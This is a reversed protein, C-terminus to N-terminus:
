AAPDGAAGRSDVVCCPPVALTTEISTAGIAAAVTAVVTLVAGVAFLWRLETPPPAIAVEPHQSAVTRGHYPGVARGSSTAIVRDAASASQAAM